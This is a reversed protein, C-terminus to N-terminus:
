RILEDPIDADSRSLNWDVLFNISLTVSFISLAPILAATAGFHVGGLNERVMMGWDAHPPQVGLGLFSISSVLLIAYTFRLGFDTSLAILANPLIDNAMIWWIGEGRARSVEVFDQVFVNMCLARAIRFVRTAEIFSVTLVLIALSTGLASICILALMISPFALFADNTRSMAEDVRGGLTAAMFGLTVGSTFALVCATLALGLTMRAGYVVRTAVDRGLYDSGLLGEEGPSGFSTQTVIASEEYPVTAPGVLAVVFWFVLVGIAIGGAVGLRPPRRRALDTIEGEAAARADAIPPHDDRVESAQAASQQPHFPPRGASEDRRLGRLFDDRLDARHPHRTGGGWGGDAQGHGSLLVAGRGGGCRQGPLGSQHRDCQRHTRDREAVCSARHHALPPVGKLLAMEVAPSSLVSLVAARTMRTMPALVAFTLTMVPLALARFAQTLTADDSLYAVAPLWRLEVAFLMVLLTAILFEPGSILWLTGITISRDYLTSPRMAAFLGLVLALPVAIAATAGGLLLTSPLRLAIIDSIERGTALSEGLDGTFLGALWELYRVPAPRDLGLELRIAAVTEETAGQGLVAEAVDGPLIETGVFVLISVVVLTLVGLALRRVILEFM